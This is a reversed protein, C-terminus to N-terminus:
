PDHPGRGLQFPVRVLDQREGLRHFENRRHVRLGRTDQERPSTAPVDAALTGRLRDGCRMADITRGGATVGTSGRVANPTERRHGGHAKRYRRRSDVEVPVPRCSRRQAGGVLHRQEDPARKRPGRFGHGPVRPVHDPGHVHVPASPGRPASPVPIDRPARRRAGGMSYVTEDPARKRSGRFGHEPVRPVHIHAHGAGPASPCRTRKPVPISRNTPCSWTRSRPRVFPLSM